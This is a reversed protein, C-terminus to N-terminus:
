NIIKESSVINYVEKYYMKLNKPAYNPHTQYQGSKCATITDLISQEVSIFDEATKKM